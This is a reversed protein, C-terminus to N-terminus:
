YQHTNIYEKLQTNLYDKTMVVGLSNVFKFIGKKHIKNNHKDGFDSLVINVVCRLGINKIWSSYDFQIDSHFLGRLFTDFEIISVCDYMQCIFNYVDDDNNASLSLVNDLGNERVAECYEVVDKKIIEKGYEFRIPITMLLFILLFLFM